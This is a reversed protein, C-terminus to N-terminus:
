FEARLKITWDNISECKANLGGFLDILKHMTEPDKKTVTNETTYLSNILSIVLLQIEHTNLEFNM